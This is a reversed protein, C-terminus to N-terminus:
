VFKDSKTKNLHDTHIQFDNLNNICSIDTSYTHIESFVCFAEKSWGKSHMAGLRQDFYVVIALKVNNVSKAPPYQFKECM